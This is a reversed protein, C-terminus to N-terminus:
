NSHIAFKGFADDVRIELVEDKDQFLETKFWSACGFKVSAANTATVGESLGVSAPLVDGVDRAGIKTLLEVHLMLWVGDVLSPFRVRVVFEVVRLMVDCKVLFKHAM